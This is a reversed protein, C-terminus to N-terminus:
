IKFPVRSFIFAWPWSSPVYLEAVLELQVLAEEAGFCTNNDFNHTGEPQLNYSM